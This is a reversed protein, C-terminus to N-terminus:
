KKPRSAKAGAKESKAKESKAEDSKARAAMADDLELQARIARVVDVFGVDDVRLPSEDPLASTLIERLGDVVVALGLKTPHLRDSQLLANPGLLM